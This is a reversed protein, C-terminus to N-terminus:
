GLGAAQRHRALQAVLTPELDRCGAYLTALAAGVAAHLQGREVEDLQSYFYKQFLCRRFRYRALRQRAPRGNGGLWRQGEARVLQQERSLPGSLAATVEQIARGLVRAAVEATFQEGEVSAAALLAQWEAPLGAWRADLAATVRDPLREWDLGPGAAWCGQPDLLLDGREQLGQLLAATLQAQGGTQRYLMERFVRGLENPQAEVLAEVFSRGDAQDLDIAREGAERQLESALDALPRRGGNRGAPPGTAGAPGAEEQGPRFAGAILIRSGALRRGLHFLLSLSGPDARQLDDLVLLVPRQRALARLDQTVQEFLGAPGGIPSGPAGRGPWALGAPEGVRPEGVRAPRAKENLFRGLPDPGAAQAEDLQQWAETFPAYPDGLGSFTDGRGFAALLDPHAHRARWAFERLLTSKGSGAEGCVFAVRGQGILARELRRELEALQSERGVCLVPPPPPDMAEVRGAAPRAFAAGSALGPGEPEAPRESQFAQGSKIREYLCATETEPAVGLEKSLLQRFREYQALAESRKGLRALLRMLQRQGAEDWPELAVLRRAHQLADAYEGRAELALALRLLAEALQQKLQNQRNLAWEEFTRSDVLDFGELFSGRYLRAAAQLGATHDPAGAAGAPRGGNALLQEFAAVDLWYDSDPNFQIQDQDLNIFPPSALRDGIVQRLNCLAQRLSTLASRTLYGPWLLEALERRSHSRDREVALFFLLARVKDSRFGKLPESNLTGKFPGLLTLSLHSAM